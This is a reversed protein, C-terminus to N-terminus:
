RAASCRSTSAGGAARGARRGAHGALRVARRSSADDIPAAAHVRAIRWGRAQATQEVLYDLTGVFDRARGGTVSTASWRWRRRRCRARAAAPEGRGPAGAVDLDRDTLAGRLGPTSAVIRAFRFLDDEM